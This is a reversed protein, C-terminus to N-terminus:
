PLANLTHLEPPDQRMAITVKSGGERLMRILAKKSM